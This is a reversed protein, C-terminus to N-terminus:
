MVQAVDAFPRTGLAGLNLLVRDNENIVGEVKGRAFTEAAIPKGQSTAEVSFSYTGAGVRVGADTRGDWEFTQLGSSTRPLPLTRIVTGAADKITVVATAVGEPLRVGGKANEGAALDLRNGSVLVDRGAMSNAQMTQLGTIQSVLSKVSENLTDIGSVTSIQALQTTFQANDLPNMPDQNRMQAVLLALFRDQMEQASLGKTLKNSSGSSATTASTVTAGAM